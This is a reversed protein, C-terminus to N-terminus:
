EEKKLKLLKVDATGGTKVAMELLAFYAGHQRLYVARTEDVQSLEVDSIRITETIVVPRQMTALLHGYREALIRKMDMDFYAVAEGDGGETMQMVRPEVAKYKTEIVDGNGVEKEYLPVNNGDTAAFPFTIIDREVDITEDDVDISGDYDGLVTEDEKWKFWNKQAWGDLSYANDKAVPRSTVSLLRGSWDVARSFDFVDAVPRMVLTDATSAQVPFVGTVAALFKVLDIPKIDPLNGQVPYLQGPQVEQESGIIESVYLPGGTVHLDSAAEPNFIGNHVPGIRLYIDDNVAMDVSLYGTAYVTLKGAVIKDATFTMDEPLIPCWHWDNGVRLGLRYGDALRYIPYNRILDAENIYCVLSYRILGKFATACVLRV